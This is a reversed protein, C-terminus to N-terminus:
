EEEKPQETAEAAAVPAAKTVQMVSAEKQEQNQLLHTLREGLAEFVDDGLGQLANPVTYKDALIDFVDKLAAVAVVGLKKVEASHTLDIIANM